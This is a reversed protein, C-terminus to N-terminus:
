KQVIQDFIGGDNFHTKQTKQWDGAIEALTFLKLNPFQRAYKALVEEVNRKMYDMAPCGSFTPTMEVQVKEGNESVTVDTIVGLDILSLVPIEPDKVEELWTLVQDKTLMPKFKRLEFKRLEYTRYNLNGTM